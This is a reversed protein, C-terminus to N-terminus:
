TAKVSAPKFEGKYATSTREPRVPIGDEGYYRLVAEHVPRAGPLKLWLRLLHRRRAPLAHDEFATRAHLLMYNNLFYADGPELAFEIAFEPDQALRDFEDLAARELPTYACAPDAEAAMDARERLHCVSLVGDTWSLVPIRYATIPPEGPAEEGFWHHAFGRYLPALYDPHRELLANYLSYGSVLRSRGGSKAQRLCLMAVVDDCDTHPTLEVSSKYGRELEGPKSNDIVHGLRDGLPSQVVPRGLLRGLGSFFTGLATEPVRGVPFGRVVVFGRGELLERRLRGTLAQLAPAGVHRRGVASESVGDRSIREIAADIAAREADTLAITFRDKAPYDAAKWAGPGTIPGGHM